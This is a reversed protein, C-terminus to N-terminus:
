MCFNCSENGLMELQLNELLLIAFVAVLWVYYDISHSSLGM